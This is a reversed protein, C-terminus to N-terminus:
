EHNYDTTWSKEATIFVSVHDEFLDKMLGENSHILAAMRSCIPQLPDPTRDTYNKFYWSGPEHMDVYGDYGDLDYASIGEDLDEEAPMNRLFTIENISFTCEEGDNFFPTYQTWCIMAIGTEEFFAKTINTFEVKMKDRFEAMLADLEAKKETVAKEISDFKSVEM